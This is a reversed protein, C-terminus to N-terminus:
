GLHLHQHQPAPTPAARDWRRSRRQWLEGIALLLALLM